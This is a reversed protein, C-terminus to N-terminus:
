KGDNQELIRAMVEAMNQVAKLLEPVEIGYQAMELRNMHHRSNRNQTELSKITDNESLTRKERESM